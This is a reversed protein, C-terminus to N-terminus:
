PHQCLYIWRKDNRIFAFGNPLACDTDRSPISRLRARHRFHIKRSHGIMVAERQIHRYRFQGFLDHIKEQIARLLLYLNGVILCKSASLKVAFEFAQDIINFAPILFCLAIIHFLFVLLKHGIHRARVAM